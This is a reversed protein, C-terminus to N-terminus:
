SFASKAWSYGRSLNRASQKKVLLPSQLDDFLINSSTALRNLSSISQAEVRDIYNCTWYYLHPLTSSGIIWAVSKLFKISRSLVIALVRYLLLFPNDSSSRFIFQASSSSLSKVRIGSYKGMVSTRIGAYSVTSPKSVAIM